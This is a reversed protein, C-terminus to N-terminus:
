LCLEPVPELPSTRYIRMKGLDTSLPENVNEFNPIMEIALVSLPTNEPLGLYLLMARVETQTWSCIGYEQPTEQRKRELDIQNREVKMKKERLM